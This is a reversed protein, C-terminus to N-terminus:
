PQAKTRPRRRAREHARNRHVQGREVYGIDRAYLEAVDNRNVALISFLGHFNGINRSFILVTM